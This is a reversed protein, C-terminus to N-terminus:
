AALLEEEAEAQPVGVTRDHKRWTLFTTAAGTLYLFVAITYPATYSVTMIRGGLVSGVMWAM